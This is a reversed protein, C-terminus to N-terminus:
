DNELFLCQPLPFSLRIRPYQSSLPSVIIRYCLRKLFFSILHAQVLIIARGNDAWESFTLVVFTRFEALLLSLQRRYPIAKTKSLM